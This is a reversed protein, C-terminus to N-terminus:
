TISTVRPLINVVGSDIPVTQGGVVGFIDWFGRGWPIRSTVASSLSLTFQGITGATITGDSTGSEDLHALLQANPNLDRRIEMVLGTAAVPTVGDSTVTLPVTWDAGSQITLETLTSATM